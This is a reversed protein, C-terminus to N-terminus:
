PKNNSIQKNDVSFGGQLTGLLGNESERNASTKPEASFTVPM